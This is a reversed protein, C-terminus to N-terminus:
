ERRAAPDDHPDVGISQRLQSRWRVERDVADELAELSAALSGYRDDLSKSLADLRSELRDIEAAQRDGTAVQERLARVEERLDNLRDDVTDAGEFGLARRLARREDADLDRRSVESVLSEVVSRDDGDRPEALAAQGDPVPERAPEEDPPNSRDATKSTAEEDDFTFAAGDASGAPERDSLEVTPAAAFLDLQDPDDVVVGYVTTRSSDPPITAAYVVTGEALTWNVPDYKPHFEVEHGRLPRPIADAIRVTCRDERASRVSFHVAVADNGHTTAVKRVAIGDHSARAVVERAPSADAPVDTSETM